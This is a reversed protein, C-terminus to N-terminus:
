PEANHDLLWKMPNKDVYDWCENYDQQNRIVHDYYSRQWINEGYERNCFRKFTGVFQSVTVANNTPVAPSPQGDQEHITILFHIHDPMIVYKDVTLNEYFLDLQRIYKDAIKGHRLLEVVANDGVSYEDQYPLKRQPCGPVATGVAINSLIKRRNATCM